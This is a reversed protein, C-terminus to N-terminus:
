KALRIVHEAHLWVDALRGDQQPILVGVASFAANRESESVSFRKYASL